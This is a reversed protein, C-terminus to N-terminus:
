QAAGELCFYGESLNYEGWLPCEGCICGRDELEIDSKDLSCYFGKDGELYTPCQSCICKRMNEETNPVKM